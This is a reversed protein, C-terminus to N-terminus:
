LGDEFWFTFGAGSPALGTQIWIGPGTMGPDTNQVYVQTVGGAAAVAAAFDSITSATQTGTHTSRDRLAADTANATAGAAIGDLKTEDATTFSATTGSIVAPIGTIDNWAVPGGGGGSGSSGAGGGLYTYTTVGDKGDKGKVKGATIKRGDTLEIILFGKDSIYASAVGVGDKGDQGKADVGDRGDRGPEGKDGKDGKPGPDGKPGQISEGKAGDIGNFGDIGRPGIVNGLDAVNAGHQMWLHGDKITFSPAFSALAERDKSALAKEVERRAAAVILAFDTPQLTM